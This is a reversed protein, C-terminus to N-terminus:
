RTHQLLVHAPRHPPLPLEPHRRAPTTVMLLTNRQRMTSNSVTIGDLYRRLMLRLHGNQQGLVAQERVLCLRELLVKNYRHWVSELGSHELIGKALERIQREMSTSSEPSREETPPPQCFFNLSKEDERELKRCLETIRLLRGGKDIVSQLKKAAGDSYITLITLQCRNRSQTSTLQCNLHRGLATVEERIAGLAQRDDSDQKQGCTVKSRLQAISYQMKHIKKMQIDIELVSGEDRTLLTQFTTSRNETSDSYSWVAEQIQHWLEEAEGGFHVRLANKEEMNRNKIDNRTSMFEQRTEADVERHCQEMAFHVDELYACEERHQSLVQERENNFATCLEELETNWQQELTGLRERQLELLRDIHDLHSGHCRASQERMSNVEVELCKIVTDKHDLVREFTQSLVAIDNRLEKARVKRFVLRWRDVLKLDNVATKQEETEMKDTFEKILMAEKKKKIEEEALAKQQLFLQKEEETMKGKGGKKGKKAM